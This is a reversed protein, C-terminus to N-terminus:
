RYKLRATYVCSCKVHGFWVLVVLRELMENSYLIRVRKASELEDEKLNLERQLKTLTEQLAEM